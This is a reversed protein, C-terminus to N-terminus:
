LGSCGCSRGVAWAVKCVRVWFINFRFLFFCSVFDGEEKEVVSLIVIAATRRVPTHEDGLARVVMQKVQGRVNEDTMGYHRRVFNKLNLGSLQRHYRDCSPNCLIACLHSMYQPHKQFQETAKQVQDQASREPNASLQLLKILNPMLVPDANFAM